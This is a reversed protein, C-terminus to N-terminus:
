RGTAGLRWPSKRDNEVWVGGVEMGTGSGLSLGLQLFRRATLLGGAPLPAPSRHLVEVIRRVLAVDPPYRAAPRPASLTLIV